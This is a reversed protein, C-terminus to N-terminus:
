KNLKRDHLLPYTALRMLSEFGACFRPDLPHPLGKKPTAGRDLNKVKQVVHPRKKAFFPLVRM